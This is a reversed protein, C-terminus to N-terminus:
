MTNVAVIAKAAMQDMWERLRKQYFTEARRRQPIDEKVVEDYGRFLAERGRASNEQDGVTIAVRYARTKQLFITDVARKPDIHNNIALLTSIEAILRNDHQGSEMEKFQPWVQDRIQQRPNKTAKDECIIVSVVDRSEEDLCLHLCDFGKDAHIMQPPSKVTTDDQINAAIWSIAQFMWGDRHWPEQPDKATLLDIAGEKATQISTCALTGTENLVDMVHCYQGLAIQAILKALTDEDTITWDTGSWKNGSQISSFTVPKSPVTKPTENRSTTRLFQVTSYTYQPM